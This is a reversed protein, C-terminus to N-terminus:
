AHQDSNNYAEETEQLTEEKGRMDMWAIKSIGSLERMM